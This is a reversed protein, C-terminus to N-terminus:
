MYVAVEARVWGAVMRDTRLEKGPLRDERVESLKAGVEGTSQPHTPLTKSFTGEM